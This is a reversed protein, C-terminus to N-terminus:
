KSRLLVEDDLEEGSLYKETKPTTYFVGSAFEDKYIANPLDVFDKM